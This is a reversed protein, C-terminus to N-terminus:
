MKHSFKQIKGPHRKKLLFSFARRKKSTGKKVKKGGCGFNPDKYVLFQHPDANNRYLNSCPLNHTSDAVFWVGSGYNVELHSLDFCRGPTLTELLLNLAGKPYCEVFNIAIASVDVQLM